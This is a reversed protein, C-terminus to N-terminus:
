KTRTTGTLKYGQNLYKTDNKSTSWATYTTISKYETIVKPESCIQQDEYIPEEKSIYTVKYIPQGDKTGILRRDPVKVTRVGVKVQETKCVKKDSGDYRTRTQITVNSSAKLPTTTWASEKVLKYEYETVKAVQTQKKTVTVKVTATKNGDNTKVTITATGAGVAKITGNSVTAVGNNSSTWTIAKNSANSPTVTATVTKSDGVYLNLSAQSLKIGTVKVTTSQPTPKVSPIPQQQPQTQVVENVKGTQQPQVPQPTVVPQPAPKVETKGECLAGVCHTSDSLNFIVYEEQKGCQLNVKLKYGESVKTIKTYSNTSNCEKGNKDKVKLILHEKYMDDLTLTKSENLTKPLRSETYYGVAVDKMRIINNTFIEDYIIDFKKEDITPKNVKCNKKYEWRTPFLFLLLLIFLVLLLLTLFFSRFSFTEKREEYM